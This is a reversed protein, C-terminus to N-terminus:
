LSGTEENVAVDLRANLLRLLLQNAVALLQLLRSDDAVMALLVVTQGLYTTGLCTKRGTYLPTRMEPTFKCYSLM